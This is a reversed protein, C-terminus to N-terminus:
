NAETPGSGTGARGLRGSGTDLKWGEPVPTDEPWRAGELDAGELNADNLDARTLDARTLDARTLNGTLTAGTLNAGTLNARTLRAGWLNAAYLDERHAGLSGPDREAILDPDVLHVSTGHAEM